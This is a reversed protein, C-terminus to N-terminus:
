NVLNRVDNANAVIPSRKRRKHWLKEKLLWERLTEHNIELQDEELLKESALTPGFGVYKEKYIRIIENRHPHNRNSKKGRAQHVLGADGEEKYKRYVRKAQCYSLGCQKAAQGLKLKGQRVMEMMAKRLREKESMVLHGGM